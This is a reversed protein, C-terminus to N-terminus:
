ENADTDAWDLQEERIGFRRCMNIVEEKAKDDGTKYTLVHDKLVIYKIGNHLMDVYWKMNNDALSKSLIEPFDACDSEFSIATWYKPINDTAWIEVKKINIYDLVREDALSEKILLGSFMDAGKM